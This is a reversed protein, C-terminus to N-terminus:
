RRRKTLRYCEAREDTGRVFFSFGLSEGDLVGMGGESEHRGYGGGQAGEGGEEEEGVSGGRPGADGGGWRSGLELM